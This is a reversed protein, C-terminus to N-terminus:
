CVQHTKKGPSVLEFKFDNKNNTTIAVPRAQYGTIDLDYLPKSDKDNNFVFLTQNLVAVWYLKTHDVFLFKEKRGLTGSKAAAYRLASASMALVEPSEDCRTSSSTYSSCDSTRDPSDKKFSVVSNRGSNSNSPPNNVPLSPKTQIVPTNALPSSPNIYLEDHFQSAHKINIYNKKDHDSNAYVNTKPKSCSNNYTNNMYGETKQKPSKPNSDFSNDFEEYFDSIQHQFKENCHSSGSVDFYLSNSPIEM